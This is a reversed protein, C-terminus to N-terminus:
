NCEKPNSVINSPDTTSEEDGGVVQNANNKVESKVVKNLMITAGDPNTVTLDCMDNNKISWNSCNGPIEWNAGYNIQIGTSSNGIITNNYVDVNNMRSGHIAPFTSNMELLNNKISSVLDTPMVFTRVPSNTHLQFGYGSINRFDNNVINYASCYLSYCGDGVNEVKCNKITAVSNEGCFVHPNIANYVDSAYINKAEFTGTSAGFAALGINVSYGNATYIGLDYVGLVSINEYKVNLDIKDPLNLDPIPPDETLPPGMLNVYHVNIGQLHNNTNSESNWKVGPQNIVIKLNSVTITRKEDNPEQPFCIVFHGDVTNWYWVLQPCERVDFEMDPATQITTKNRGTGKLTGNFNWCVISKHLYFLGEGLMVTEGPGANNLADSINKWDDEAKLLVDTETSPMVKIQAKKLMVPPEDMFEDPETCSFCLSMCFIVILLKNLIKM